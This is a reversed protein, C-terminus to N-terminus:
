KLLGGVGFLPIGVNQPGGVNTLTFLPSTMKLAGGGILPVGLNQPGRLNLPNFLPSTVKFSGGGGLYLSGQM